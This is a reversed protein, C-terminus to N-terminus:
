KLSKGRLARVKMTVYRKDYLNEVESNLELFLLPSNSDPDDVIKLAGAPSISRVTIMYGAILGVILMIIALVM